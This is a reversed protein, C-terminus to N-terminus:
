DSIECEKLAQIKFDYRTVMSDYVAYAELATYKEILEMRKAREKLAQHALKMASVIDQAKICTLYSLHGTEIDNFINIAQRNKIDM